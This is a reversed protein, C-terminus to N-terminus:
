YGLPISNIGTNKLDYSEILINNKYIKFNVNRFKSFDYIISSFGSKKLHLRIVVFKVVSKDYKYSFSIKRINEGIIHSLDVCKYNVDWEWRIEKPGCVIINDRADTIKDNITEEFLVTNLM